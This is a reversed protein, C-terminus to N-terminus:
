PYHKLLIIQNCSNIIQAMEYAVNSSNRILLVAKAPFFGAWGLKNVYSPDQTDVVALQPYLIQIEQLKMSRNLAKQASLPLSPLFSSNFHREM